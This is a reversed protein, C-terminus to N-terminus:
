FWNKSHIQNSICIPGRHKDARLQLLADVGGVRHSPACLEASGHRGSARSVRGGRKSRTGGLIQLRVKTLMVTGLAVSHAWARTKKCDISANEFDIRPTPSGERGRSRASVAPQDLPLLAVARLRVVAKEREAPAGNQKKFGEKNM